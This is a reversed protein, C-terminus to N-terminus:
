VSEDFYFLYQFDIEIKQQFFDSIGQSYWNRLTRLKIAAPSFIGFPFKVLFFIGKGFKGGIVFFDSLHGALRCVVLNMLHQGALQHFSLTDRLHFSM